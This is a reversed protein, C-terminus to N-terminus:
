TVREPAIAQALTRRVCSLAASPRGPQQEGEGLVDRALLPHLGLQALRLLHLRDALEGAADRVVEVVQKADDDAIHFEQDLPRGVLLLGGHGPLDQVAREAAGIEGATQEREGAALRQLRPPDVQVGIQRVM